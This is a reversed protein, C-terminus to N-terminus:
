PSDFTSLSNLIACKTITTTSKATLCLKLNLTLMGYDMSLHVRGTCYNVLCKLIIYSVYNPDDDHVRKVIYKWVRWLFSDGSGILWSIRNIVPLKSVSKKALSANIFLLGSVRYRPHRNEVRPLLLDGDADEDDEDRNRTAASDTTPRKYNEM